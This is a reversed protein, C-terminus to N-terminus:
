RFADPKNDSHVHTYVHISYNIDLLLFHKSIRREESFLLRHRNTVSGATDCKNCRLVNANWHLSKFIIFYKSLRIYSLKQKAEFLFVIIPDKAFLCRSSRVIYLKCLIKGNM